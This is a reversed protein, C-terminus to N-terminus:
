RGTAKGIAARTQEVVKADEDREVFLSLMELRARARCSHALCEGAHDGSGLGRVEIHETSGDVEAILLGGACLCPNDGTYDVGLSRAHPALSFYSIGRSQRMPALGLASSPKDATEEFQLVEPGLLELADSPHHPDLRRQTRTGDFAAERLNIAM